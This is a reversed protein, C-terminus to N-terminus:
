RPWAPTSVTGSGRTSTSKTEDLDILVLEECTAQNVLAYAYAMGVAGTGVLVIRNPVFKM